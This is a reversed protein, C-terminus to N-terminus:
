KDSMFFGSSCVRIIPHKMEYENIINVKQFMEKLKVISQNEKSIDFIYIPHQNCVKRLLGFYIDIPYHYGM